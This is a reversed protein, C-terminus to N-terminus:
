FFYLYRIGNLRTAFPPLSYRKFTQCRGTITGKLVIEPIFDNHQGKKLLHCNTM